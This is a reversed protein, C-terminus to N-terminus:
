SRVTLEAWEPGDLDSDVGLLTGLKVIADSVYRKVAGDSLGLTQATEHTSQHELFRLVVCARERPALQALAAAVDTAHETLMDPGASPDAETPLTRTLARLEASDKRKADIFRSAIVKKAFAEAASANPYSRLSGFTVILADQVLDEADSRNGTLMHAYGVLAHHRQTVVQILLPEWRAM